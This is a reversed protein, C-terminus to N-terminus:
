NQPFVTLQSKKVCKMKGLNQTKFTDGLQSPSNCGKIYRPKKAPRPKSWHQGTSSRLVFRGDRNKQPFV